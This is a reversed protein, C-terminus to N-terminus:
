QQPSPSISSSPSVSASVSSSPSLSASPSDSQSASPSYSSSPSYSASASSSPSLSASPSASASPSEGPRDIDIDESLNVAEGVKVSFDSLDSNTGVALRYTQIGVVNISNLLTSSTALNEVYLSMPLGTVYTENVDAQLGGNVYFKVTGAEWKVRFEVDASTWATQWTITTSGSTTGDSVKASIVSDSIDFYAYANLNHQRFGFRKDDGFAPASLNLNFVADGRLIDGYHIMSSDSLSLTSGSVVPLGWLTRWSETSYGERIPDYYLNTYKYSM